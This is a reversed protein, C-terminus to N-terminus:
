LLVELNDLLDVEGKEDATESPPSPLQWYRWQQVDGSDINFVLAHAPPLKKVGKVLCRNGPAYGMGLYCDLSEPDISREFNADAFLGKLESAFRLEGFAFSYFLPKEGARDRALFLTRELSDHLAFAFMGNLRSLCSNGWELYAEIIVETDSNSRFVHGSATLEERLDKYNYIEGNFVITVRGAVNRMPQHGAPSLDIISLRRHGLGVQGEASWWIGSDDPGRHKMANCGAALWDRKDIVRRSAIGIFGCM